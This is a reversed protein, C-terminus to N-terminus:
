VGLISKMAEVLRDLAQETTMPGPSVRVTGGTKETELAKHIEAACHFGARLQLGFSGDLIASFERSDFGDVTFSTPGVHAEAATPSKLQVGPLISLREALKSSWQAQFTRISDLGNEELYRLGRESDRSPRCM